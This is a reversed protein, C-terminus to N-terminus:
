VDVCVKYGRGIHRDRCKWIGGAAMPKIRTESRSEKENNWLEKEREVCELEIRGSRGSLNTRWWSSGFVRGASQPAVIGAVPGSATGCSSFALASSSCDDFNGELWRLEDQGLLLRGGRLGAARHAAQEATHRVVEPSGDGRPVVGSLM